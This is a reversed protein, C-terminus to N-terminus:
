VVGNGGCTPCDNYVGGGTGRCSPCTRPYVSAGVSSAAGAPGAPPLPFRRAPPVEALAGSDMLRFGPSRTGDPCRSGLNHAAQCDGCRNCILDITM